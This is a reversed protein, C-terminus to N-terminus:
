IESASLLIVQDSPAGAAAFGALCADVTRYNRDGVRAARDLFIPQQAQVGGQEAPAKLLARLGQCAAPNRVNLSHFARTQFSYAYRIDDSM